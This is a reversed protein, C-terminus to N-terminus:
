SFDPPFPFPDAMLAHTLHFFRQRGIRKLFRQTGCSKIVKQLGIRVQTKMTHIPVGGSCGSLSAIRETLWRTRAGGVFFSKQNKRRGTEKILLKKTKTKEQDKKRNVLAGM